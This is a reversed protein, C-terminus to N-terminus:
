RRRRRRGSDAQIPRCSVVAPGLDWVYLAGEHDPEGLAERLAELGPESTSAQELPLVVYRFGLTSLSLATGQPDAALGSMLQTLGLNGGAPDRPLATTPRDHFVARLMGDQGHAPNRGRQLPLELVAGDTGRMTLLLELGPVEEVPRPWFPGTDRVGDAVQVLFLSLITPAAWRWGAVARGVVVVLGLVVLVSYRYYMGGQATPYGLMELWAIPTPVSLGYFAAQGGMSLYPGLSLLGGGLTLAVGGPHAGRRWLVLAGALLVLALGLYVTHGPELPTEPRAVTGFFLRDLEAVPPPDPVVAQFMAKRQAPEFLSDKGSALGQKYYSGAPLLSLFLALLALGGRTLARLPTRRGTWLTAVAWGGALLPLSLALYPSTMAAVLGTGAVLLLGWWRRGAQELSLLLAPPIWAQTNSIELTAFTALLNPCLGYCAGLLGASVSSAGTWRRM